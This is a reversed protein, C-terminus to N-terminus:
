NNKNDYLRDALNILLNIDDVSLYQAKQILLKLEPKEYLSYSLKEIIRDTYFPSSPEQDFEIFDDIGCDLVKAIKQLSDITPNKNFGGFIKEITSKPIGSKEAINKATFNKSNKLENLKEKSLRPM